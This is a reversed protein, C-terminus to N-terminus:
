EDGTDRSMASQLASTPREVTNFAGITDGGKKKRENMKNKIEDDYSKGLHKENNNCRPYESPSAGPDRDIDSSDWAM